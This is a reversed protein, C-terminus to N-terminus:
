QVWGDIDFGAEDKRRYTLGDPKYQSERQGAAIAHRKAAEGAGPRLVHVIPDKLRNGARKDAYELNSAALHGDLQQALMATDVGQAVPLELYLRYRAHEEDAQMLFYAPTLKSDATAREVATMVQHLHLKEGTISTVGRGKQLFRIVPCRNVFGDVRVIDNIDYRYLGSRTTVLVYYNEGPKLQRLWMKLIENIDWFILRVLTM